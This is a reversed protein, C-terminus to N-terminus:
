FSSSIVGFNKIRSAKANMSVVFEGDENMELKVIQDGQLCLYEELVNVLESKLLECVRKNDQTKDGVLVSKLRTAQKEGISSM